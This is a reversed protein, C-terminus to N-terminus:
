AGSISVMFKRFYWLLNGTQDIELRQLELLLNNGSLAYESTTMHTQKGAQWPADPLYELFTNTSMHNHACVRSETDKRTHEGLMRFHLLLCHARIYAHREEKQGKQGARSNHCPSSELAAEGSLRGKFWESHSDRERVM